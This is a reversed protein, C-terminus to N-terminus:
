IPNLAEGLDQLSREVGGFRVGDMALLQEVGCLPEGGIGEIGTGIGVPASHVGQIAKQSSWIPSAQILVELTNSGTRLFLDGPDVCVEGGLVVNLQWDAVCEGSNLEAVFQDIDGQYGSGLEATGFDLVEDLLGLEKINSEGDPGPGISNSDYGSPNAWGISVNSGVVM